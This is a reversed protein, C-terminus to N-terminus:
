RLFFGGVRGNQVNLTALLDDGNDEFSVKWVSIELGQQRLNGLYEVDYGQKLRPAIARAVQTFEPEGLAAFEPTGESIFEQHNEEAIADLLRHIVPHDHTGAPKTNQAMVPSLLAALMLLGAVLRALSLRVDYQPATFPATNM